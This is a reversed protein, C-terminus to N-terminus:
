DNSRVILKSKRNINGRVIPNPVVNQKDVNDAIHQKQADVHQRRNTCNEDIDAAKCKQHRLMRGIACMDKVSGVKQKLQEKMNATERGKTKKIM